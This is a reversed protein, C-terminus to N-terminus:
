GNRSCPRARPWPDLVSRGAAALHSTGGRVRQRDVFWSQGKNLIIAQPKKTTLVIQIRNPYGKNIAVTEVWSHTKITQILQNADLLLINEGKLSGVWSEVKSSELPWETKIDITEIKFFQLSTILNKVRERDSAWYLSIGVILLGLVFSILHIGRLGASVQITEAKSQNM